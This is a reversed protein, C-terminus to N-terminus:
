ADLSAMVTVNGVPTKVKVGTAPGFSGFMFDTEGFSFSLVRTLGGRRLRVTFVQGVTPCTPARASPLGQAM